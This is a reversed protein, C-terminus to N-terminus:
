HIPWPKRPEGQEDILMQALVKESCAKCVGHSVLGIPTDKKIFLGCWACRISM